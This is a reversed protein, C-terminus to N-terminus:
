KFGGKVGISGSMLEAVTWAKGTSPNVSADSFLTRAYTDIDASPGNIAKGSSMAASAIKHGGGGVDLARVKVGVGHIEAADSYLSQPLGYLDTSGGDRAMLAYESSADFMQSATQYNGTADENSNLMEVGRDSSPAYDVVRASSGLREYHVDDMSLLYINGIDTYFNYNTNYSGDRWLVLQVGKMFTGIDAGDFTFDQVLTDDIYVRTRKSAREMIMEVHHVADVPYTTGVTTPKTFTNRGYVCLPFRAPTGSANADGLVIACQKPDVLNFSSAKTKDATSSMIAIGHRFPAAANAAVNPGAFSETFTFGFIIGNAAESAGSMGLGVFEPGSNASTHLYRFLKRTPFTPDVVVGASGYVIAANASGMQTKLAIGDYGVFPFMNTTSMRAPTVLNLGGFGTAYQVSM